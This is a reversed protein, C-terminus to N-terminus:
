KTIQAMLEAESVLTNGVFARGRMHVIGRRIPTILSLDFILTDGPVVKAKFKVNDLKMFFTLYNEPDPVSSLALIGGCQAMAEVQLVGPMVPSGPFHGVFFPENMTVAKVGVVRDETLEIIKDVLLFPSRHPILGMIEEVNKVPVANPDYKPPRPRSEEKRIKASLAKTFEANVGHGPKTAIIRAKLPRGLLALDGVVDLLKHRAAENSFRLNINNLTGRQTVQVDDRGFATKLKDLTSPAIDQDVYVIANNLDGGKILGADLLPELERLFSFTRASAIEDRFNVMKDLHAHQPGLVSSGYDILASVEFEESPLAMIESGDEDKFTFTEELVYFNKEVSQEEIGAELILDVLPAASGDLIPVESGNLEVRLNDIGLAYLSAMLHEVTGVSAEGNQLITQRDTRNVYKVLAPIEANDLDERVFVIGTNEASPILKVKVVEGTHLANGQFSIEKSLTKQMM